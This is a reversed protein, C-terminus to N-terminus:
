VAMFILENFAYTRTHHLGFGQVLVPRRSLVPWPSDPKKKQTVVTFLPRYSARPMLAHSTNTPLRQGDGPYAGQGHPRHQAKVQRLPWAAQSISAASTQTLASPDGTVVARHFCPGSSVSGHQGTHWLQVELQHCMAKDHGRLKQPMADPQTSSLTASILRWPSLSLCISSWAPPPRAAVSTVM